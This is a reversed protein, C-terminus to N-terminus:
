TLFLQPQTTQHAAISQELVECHADLCSIADVAPGPLLHLLKMVCKVLVQVTFLFSVKGESSSLVRCSVGLLAAPQTDTM